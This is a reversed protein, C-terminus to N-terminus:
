SVGKVKIMIEPTSLLMTSTLFFMIVTICGGLIGLVPYRFGGIFLIAAVWETIGIITSGLVAGFVKFHWSMLPSNTVLPTITESGPHTMKFAGAWLLMIIMGIAVVFFPIDWKKVFASLAILQQTM